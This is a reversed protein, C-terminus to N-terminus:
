RLLTNTLFDPELLTGPYSMIDLHSILFGVSTLHTLTFCCKLYPVVRLNSNSFLIKNGTQTAPLQDRAVVDRGQFPSKDDAHQHSQSVM